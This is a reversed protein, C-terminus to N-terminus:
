MLKGLPGLDINLDEDELGFVAQLERIKRQVAKLSLGLKQVEAPSLSGKKVRRYAEKEMVKRILEVLTLVLRAIGKEAQEPDAADILRPINEEARRIEAQLRQIQRIEEPSAVRDPNSFSRGSMEEAKSVSTLILRLGAYVLDIDAVRIVLEGDVVAGTELLKDLAEALTVNGHEQIQTSM